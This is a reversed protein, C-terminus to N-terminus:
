GPRNIFTNRLTHSHLHQASPRKINNYDREAFHHTLEKHKNPNHLASVRFLLIRMCSSHQSMKPNNAKKRLPPFNKVKTMLRPDVIM